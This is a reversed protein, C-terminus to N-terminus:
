FEVKPPYSTIPEQWVLPEFKMPSNDMLLIMAVMVEGLALLGAGRSLKHAKARLMFVIFFCFYKTESAKLSLKPEDKSGLMSRCLDEVRTHGAPQTSYWAMLEARIQLVSMQQVESQTRSAPIGYCNENLLDWVVCQCYYKFVGLYLVHLADLAISALGVGLAADFLPNRHRVRTEGARRWFLINAPFVNIAEFAGVDRLQPCPELRDGVQLGLPAYPAVLARGRPGVTRKDFRLLPVLAQHDARSIVVHVECAKCAADYDADEFEAWPFGFPSLGAGDIQEEAPASCLCCPFYKANLAALGLSTSYEVLDGKIWM